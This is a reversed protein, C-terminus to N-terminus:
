FDMQMGNQTCTWYNSFSAYFCWIGRVRRLMHWINIWWMSSVFSTFGAMCASIIFTWHFTFIFLMTFFKM